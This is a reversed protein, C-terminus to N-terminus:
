RIVPVPRYSLPRKTPHAAHFALLAAFFEDAHGEADRQAEYTARGSTTLKKSVKAFASRVARTNPLLLRGQEMALRMEPIREHVRSWDGSKVETILRRGYRRRLDQALQAGEGAADVAVGAYDGADLIARAADFQPTYDMREGAAKLTHIHSIASMSSTKLLDAMCSGDRASALDIGGYLAAGEPLEEPESWLARRILESPFYQHIDSLFQCCFEQLWIDSPYKRRLEEPDVPFGESAAQHVDIEHRSWDGHEGTADTWIEWFIGSAGFPTSILILRLHPDTDAAPAVAAWVERDRQYFALEDLIITGTRSRVALASLPIIRSGNRFSVAEKTIEAIPIRVGAAEFATLWRGLRRLLEKANTFSTSCLYVDHWPTDLCLLLAELVVAESMGIRRSKLCIKRRSRDFVWRRQYPRLYRAFVREAAGM